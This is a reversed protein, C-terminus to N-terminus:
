RRFYSAFHDAKMKMIQNMQDSFQIQVWGDENVNLYMVKGNNLKIELKNGKQKDAWDKKGIREYTFLKGWRTNLFSYIIDMYRRYDKPHIVFIYSRQTGRHYTLVSLRADPLYKQMESKTKEWQEYTRRAKQCYYVVNQGREYYQQIETPFIYKEATKDSFAKSGISGNDPDAFVLEVNKLKDLANKHWLGRVKVREDASIIMETSMLENFYVADPILNQAEIMQVKRNGDSVIKKLADFVAPDYRSETEKDLYSIFKGDNSSDDATLYWNIGIKIGRQAFYRLMGYKGYDGIDGCYKNKM